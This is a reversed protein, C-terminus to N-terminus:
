RGRERERKRQMPKSPRDPCCVTRQKEGREGDGRGGGRRERECVEGGGGRGREKLDEEKLKQM